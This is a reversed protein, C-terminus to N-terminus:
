TGARLHVTHSPPLLAARLHGHQGVGAEPRGQPPGGNGGGQGSGTGHGSGGQSNAGHSAPPSTPPAPPASKPPSAKQANGPPSPPPGGSTSGAPVGEVPPLSLNYQKIAQQQAVTLTNLAQALVTQGSQRALQLAAYEAGLDRALARVVVTTDEHKAKMHATLLILDHMTSNLEGTLSRVLADNHRAAVVRTEALRQAAISALVEGRRQDSWASTVAIWETGRKVAYLPSDPLAASAANLTQWIGLACVLLVAAALAISRWRGIKRAAGRRWVSTGRPGKSVATAPAASTQAAILARVRERAGDAEHAPVAITSRLVVIARLTEAADADAAFSRQVCEEQTAAGAELATLCEDLLEDRTM